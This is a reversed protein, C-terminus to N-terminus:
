ATVYLGGYGTDRYEKDGNHPRCSLKLIRALLMTTCTSSLTMCAPVYVCVDRVQNVHDVKKVACVTNSPTHTALMVDGFSGSGLTKILHLDKLACGELRHLHPM